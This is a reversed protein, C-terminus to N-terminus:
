RSPLRESNLLPGHAKLISQVECAEPERKLAAMLAAMLAAAVSAADEFCADREWRVSGTSVDDRRLFIPRILVRCVAWRSRLAGM